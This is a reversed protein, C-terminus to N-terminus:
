RAHHVGREGARERGATVAPEAQERRQRLRLLETVRARRAQARRLRDLETASVQREDRKAARALEAADHTYVHAWERGRSLDVYLQRRNAAGLADPGLSVLVRDVTRSQGSISTTTYGHALHGFGRDIVVRRRGTDAVIDGRATFGAVTLLDGNDLRQGDRSEGGATLRVRDGVALNLTGPRYAQFRAALQAPPKVGGSLEVREGCRHGKANQVFQIVDGEQYSHPDARQAETLQLSRLVTFPREEDLAGRGKLGERIAATVKAGEAHTPAVVLATPSVEQWRGGVKRREPEVAALYDAALQQYRGADSERVWGMEALRMVAAAPKDRALEVLTKYRTDKQRRIRALRAPAIGADSKLLEFPSGRSPSRHQKSDGVLWVRAGLEGAARLLKATEATGLMAAEDVLIVQGRARERLERSTFLAAVTQADPFGEARLNTRSAQASPAVAVVRGGAAEVARRAESLATTKGAGADGELMTVFDRSGALHHVAARQDVELRRDAIEWRPNVAPLTGRGARALRVLEREEALVARSAVHLRGDVLATFRDGRELEGRAEEVSFGGVGYALAHALLESAPASSKREFVHAAAWEMAERATPHDRPVARGGERPHKARWHLDSLAEREAATLRAAWLRRLQDPTFGDAKHERTEAGLKAKLDPATIGKEKARAEVQAKRRSFKDAASKPVGAVEFAIGKREVPYGLAELRTALRQHYAAQHYPMDRLVDFLNAAKWQKEAADWTANLVFFHEHPQMDPVGEVPRTTDHEARYWLLNGTTRNEERGKKRVRAAAALEIERMTELAAERRAEAIRPDPTLAELVAVSKPTDFTLDVGVIRDERTRATLPQGTLPHLNDCLREFHLQEAPGAVGLLEAARGGLENAPAAHGPAYYDSRAYYRKADAASKQVHHRIM